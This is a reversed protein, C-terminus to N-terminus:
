EKNNAVQQVLALMYENIDIFATDIKKRLQEQQQELQKSEVQLTDLWDAFPMTKENQLNAVKSAALNAPMSHRVGLYYAPIGLLAAERAMSDGSSVLGAAYYMLSHIDELPEELLIWDAPYEHRRHKEELSFLVKMPQGDATRLQSIYQQINHIAGITQDAYNITGVSVERLFIYQKPQIDYKRLQEVNPVFTKPNLYAWEKLCRLVHLNGGYTELKADEFLCFNCETNYKRKFMFDLTDPDDGFSYSKGRFLHQIIAPHMGNGFAVDCPHKMRWHLLQILRFINAHIVASIKTMKHKGIEYITLESHGDLERHVINPTKGRRLITLNVSCGRHLLELIIPKYFNYQPTHCIDIWITM